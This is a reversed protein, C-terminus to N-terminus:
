YWADPIETKRKDVYEKLEEDKAADLPPAQYEKLLQNWREFARQATDKSGEEEWQEVNNSDSM